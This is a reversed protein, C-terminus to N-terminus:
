PSTSPGRKEIPPLPPLELMVRWGGDQKVCRVEARQGPEEGSASVVAWDGDIRARYRSPKFRLSFHSPALMEEPAVKRGAVASARKAREALNSQAETCLLGYAARAAKPDGHVRQMREIFADVVRTPDAGLPESNCATLTALALTGGGAAVPLAPASAALECLAVLLGARRTRGILSRAL